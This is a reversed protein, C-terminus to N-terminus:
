LLAAFGALPLYKMINNIGQKVVNTDAVIVDGPQMTPDDARGTQIQSLNFKAASRKGGTTRLVLIMSNSEPALGGAMTVCQFLTEGKYPFVGPSKVAGSVTVRNSNFEKVMVQVQPNQLYKAGLRSSLDKQVQQATKGSVPTEGILPFDITGNDAVEVTKSLDPAQFVSIELVDQPGIKYASRGPTAVSALADATQAASPDRVAATNQKPSVRNSTEQAKSNFSPTIGNSMPQTNSAAPSGQTAASPSGDAVNGFSGDTKCGALFMATLLVTITAAVKELWM